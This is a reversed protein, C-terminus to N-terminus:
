SWRVPRRGVPVSLKAGSLVAPPEVRVTAVESATALNFSAAEVAAPLRLTYSVIRANFAPMLVGASPTLSSLDANREPPQRRVDLMYRLTRGDQATVAVALGMGSGPPSPWWPAKRAARPRGPGAPHGPSRDGAGPGGAGAPEAAQRHHGAAPHRLAGAGRLVTQGAVFAPSLGAGAVALSALTNNHDPEARTVEVLYERKSGDEATVTVILPLWDLGVFEM